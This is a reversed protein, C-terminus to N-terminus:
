RGFLSLNIKAPKIQAFTSYQLQSLTKCIAHDGAATAIIAAVFVVVFTGTFQRGNRPCRSIPPKGHTYVEPHLVVQLGPPPGDLEEVGA